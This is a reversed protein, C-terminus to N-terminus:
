RLVLERRRLFVTCRRGRGKGITGVRRAMAVERLDERAEEERETREAREM